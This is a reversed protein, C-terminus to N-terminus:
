DYFEIRPEGQMGAQQMADKLEPKSLYARATELSDFYHLVLINDPDDAMRHVSHDTVGGTRPQDTGVLTARHRCLVVGPDTCFPATTALSRAGDDSGGVSHSTDAAHDPM